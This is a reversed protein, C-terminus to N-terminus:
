NHQEILWYAFAWWGQELCGYEFQSWGYKNLKKINEKYYNEIKEKSVGGNEYYQKITMSYFEHMYDDSNYLEHAFEYVRERYKKQWEDDSMYTKWKWKYIDVDPFVHNFTILQTNKSIKFDENVHKNKQEFLWDIFYWWGIPVCKNFILDWDDYQQADTFYEDCKADNNTGFAAYWFERLTLLFFKKMYVNKDKVNLYCDSILPTLKPELENTVQSFNTIYNNLDFKKIDIDGFLTEFTPEPISTKRSIKFDEKIHQVLTKM